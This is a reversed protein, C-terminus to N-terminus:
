AGKVGAFIGLVFVGDVGFCGLVGFGASVVGGGPVVAGGEVGGECGGFGLLSFCRGFIVTSYTALGLSLYARSKHTTLTLNPASKPTPQPIYCVSSLGSLTLGAFGCTLLGLCECSPPASLPVPCLALPPPLGPFPFFTLQHPSQPLPHITLFCKAHMYTHLDVKTPPMSRALAMSATFM